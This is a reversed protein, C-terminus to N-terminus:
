LDLLDREYTTLKGILEKRDAGRRKRTLQVRLRETGAEQHDRWWIQMELSHQTVDVEQLRNYLEAASASAKAYSIFRDRYRGIKVGDLEDLLQRVILMDTERQTPNLKWDPLFFLTDYSVNKSNRPM